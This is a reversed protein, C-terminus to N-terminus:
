TKQTHGVISLLDGAKFTGAATVADIAITTAGKTYGAANYVPPKRSVYKHIISSFGLPARPSLCKNPAGTHSKQKM